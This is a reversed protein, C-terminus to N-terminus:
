GAAATAKITVSAILAIASHALADRPSLEDASM